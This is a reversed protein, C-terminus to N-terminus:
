IGTAEYHKINIRWTFMAIVFLTIAWIFSISIKSTIENISYQNQLITIPEYVMSPFPSYALIKRMNEPFFILPVLSGSLIRILHSISHRIGNTEQIKFAFSAVLICISYTIFFALVVMIFFSLLQLVSVSGILFISVVLMVVSFMMDITYYGRHEALLFTVEDVPLILSRSLEGDKIRRNLYGVFNLGGPNLAWISVFQVLVFYSILGIFNIPTNSYKSIMSWFLALFGIELIPELFTILVEYPYAVITLFAYYFTYFYTRM